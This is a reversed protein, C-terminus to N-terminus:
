HHLFVVVDVGLKASMEDEMQVKFEDTLFAWKLDEIDQDITRGNEDFESTARLDLVVATNPAFDGDYLVDFRSSPDNSFTITIVERWTREVLEAMEQSNSDPPQRAASVLVGIDEKSLIEIHFHNRLTIFQRGYAGYKQYVTKYEEKGPIFRYKTSDALAKDYSDLAAVRNLYDNFHYRYVEQLLLYRESMRPFLGTLGKAWAMESHFSTPRIERAEKESPYTWDVTDLDSVGPVCGPLLAVALLLATVAKRIVRM